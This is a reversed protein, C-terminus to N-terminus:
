DYTYYICFHGNETFMKKVDVEEGPGQDSGERHLIPVPGSEKRLYTKGFEFLKLDGQQRNQNRVVAELSSFLMSPRMIDLHVNSTNNVWVLEHEGM